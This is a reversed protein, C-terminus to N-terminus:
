YDAPCAEHNYYDGLEELPDYMHNPNTKRAYEPKAGMLYDFASLSYNGKFPGMLSNTVGGIDSKAGVIARHIEAIQEEVTLSNRLSFDRLFASTTPFGKALANNDIRDRENDTVRFVIKHNKVM